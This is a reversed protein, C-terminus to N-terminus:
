KRAQAPACCTEGVILRTPLEIKEPQQDPNNILDLLMTTAVRGMQELPQRVTTLRPHVNAAMPIDDFGIISMDKPISLGQERVAEMVGFAMMDNSAFIATPRDPLNLLDVGGKYGTPQYFDGERILNPDLPLGHDHLAAKYGDLRRVACGLEPTGTIFGIRKHGLGILYSTADYGGQWNSAGVSPGLEDIGQHDVLVYPFKRRRLTELYAEANRPLILLLGDATGQTLTQVFLSEKVKRRHTTFLMLNYQAKALEDDMGRIIEGTYGTGLDQVLLGVVYSRGGALSRAQTNAVYGLQTMARLVRERADPNVNGKNNIVRSVTAYSVGAEKGIDIITIRDTSQGRNNARM